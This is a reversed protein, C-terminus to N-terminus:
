QYKAVLTGITEKWKDPGRVAWAMADEGDETRYQVCLLPAFVTKGNFSKPLSIAKISRLPIRYEKEPMARIFCIDDKTLVLAGNGRIQRGGKSKEGFFNARTTAGIIEKEDFRDRVIVDLKKRISAFFLKLLFLLCVIAGGVSIGITLGTTM